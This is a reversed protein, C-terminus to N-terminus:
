KSIPHTSFSWHFFINVYTVPTQFAFFFFRIVEHIGLKAKISKFTHFDQQNVRRDMRLYEKKIQSFQSQTLQM